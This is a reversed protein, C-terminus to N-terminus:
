WEIIVIGPSGLGVKGYYSSYRKSMGPAGGGAGYGGANGGDGTESQTSRTGDSSGMLYEGEIGNSLYQIGLGMGPLVIKGSSYYTSDFGGNGGGFGFAGSFGHGSDSDGEKSGIIGTKYGLKDCEFDFKLSNAILTILEGIITNGTGVTIEITSKPKVNFAKDIVFEGAMGAGNNGYKKELGSGGAACGSVFIQTVGEPVKFTGSSTFIMKNQCNIGGGSYKLQNNIM